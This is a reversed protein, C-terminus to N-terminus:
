SAVEVSQKRRKYAAVRDRGCQGCTMTKGAKHLGVAKLDHGNICAGNANARLFAAVRSVGRLTNTRADTVELHAPNVCTRNRCLHDVVTGAPMAVGAIALAVRHAQRSVRRGARTRQVRGYGGSCRSGTWDHCGSLADITVSQNFRDADLFDGTIPKADIM